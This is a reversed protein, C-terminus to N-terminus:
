KLILKQLKRKINRQLESLLILLAYLPCIGLIFKYIWGKNLIAENASGTDTALNYLIFLEFFIVMWSFKKPNLITNLSDIMIILYIFHIFFSKLIDLM